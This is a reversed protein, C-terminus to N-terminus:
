HWTTLVCVISINVPLLNDHFSLSELLVLNELKGWLTERLWSSKFDSLSDCGTPFWWLDAERGPTQMSHSHQQLSQLLFEWKEPAFFMMKQTSVDLSLPCQHHRKYGTKLTNENRTNSLRNPPWLEKSLSVATQGSVHDQMSDSRVSYCLPTKAGPTPFSPYIPASHEFDIARYCYINFSQTFMLLCTSHKESPCNRFFVM